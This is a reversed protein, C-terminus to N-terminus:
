KLPQTTCPQGQVDLILGVDPLTLKQPGRMQYLRVQRGKEVPM